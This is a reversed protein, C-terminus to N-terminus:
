LDEAMDGESINKLKSNSCSVGKCDGCGVTCDLGLKRCSCKRTDCNLKCNCRIVKILREPAPSVNTRIPFLKGDVNEWGWELPNLHDTTGIWAQLQLYARKSHYSAAASTPPLTHVQLFVTNQMVKRTFKRYRLLDLGEYIMGGYLSAIVEEGSKVIEDQSANPNMFIMAHERLRIESLIKQFAAPKGKGFMRCTTDCGSIAHIFPILHCVDLGLASKTKRIDWIKMTSSSTKM